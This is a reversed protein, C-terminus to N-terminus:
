TVLLALGALAFAAGVLVGVVLVEVVLGWAEGALQGLLRRRRRPEGSMAQGAPRGGCPLGCM